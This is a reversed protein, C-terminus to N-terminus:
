EIWIPPTLPLSNPLQNYKHCRVEIIMDVTVTIEITPTIDAVAGTMGTVVLDVAEHIRRVSAGIKVVSGGAAQLSNLRVRRSIVLSSGELLM